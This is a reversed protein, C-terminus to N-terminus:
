PQEDPMASAEIYRSALDAPKAQPDLWPQAFQLIALAEDYRSDLDIEAVQKDLISQTTSMAQAERYDVTETKVLTSTNAVVQSDVYRNALYAPEAQPDLWPQVFQLIVLADDYNVAEDVTISQANSMSLAERYSVTLDAELPQTMSQTNILSSPRNTFVAALAVVILIIIVFLSVRGRFNVPHHIVQSNHVHNETSM